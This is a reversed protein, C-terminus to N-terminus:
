LKITKLGLSKITEKYEEDPIDNAYLIKQVEAPILVGKNQMTLILAGVIKMIDKSM